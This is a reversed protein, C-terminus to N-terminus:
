KTWSVKPIDYHETLTSLYENMQQVREKHSTSALVKIREAERKSQHKKFNREAETLGDDEHEEERENQITAILAKEEKDKVHKSHKHKKHKKHKKKSESGGKLKLGGGVGVAYADEDSM